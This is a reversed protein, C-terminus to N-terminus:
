GIHSIRALVEATATQRAVADALERQLADREATREDLQRQLDTVKQSPDAAVDQPM